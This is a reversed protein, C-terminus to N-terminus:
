NWVTIWVIKFQFYNNDRMKYWTCVYVMLTALFHILLATVKVSGERAMFYSHGMVNPASYLGTLILPESGFCTKVSGRISSIVLVDLCSGSSPVGRSTSHFFRSHPNSASIDPKLTCQKYWYTPLVCGKLCFPLSPLLALSPPDSTNWHPYWWEEIFFNIFLIFHFLCFLIFYNTMKCSLTIYTHLFMCFQLPNNQYMNFFLVQSCIIFNNRKYRLISKLNFHVNQFNNAIQKCCLHM